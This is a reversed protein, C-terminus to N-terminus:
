YHAHASLLQLRELDVSCLCYACLRLYTVFMLCQANLIALRFLLSYFSDETSVPEVDTYKILSLMFVNLFFTQTQVSWM